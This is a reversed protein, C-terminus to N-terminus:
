LRIGFDGNAVNIAIKRLEQRRDNAAPIGRVLAPPITNNPIADITRGAQKRDRHLTSGIPKVVRRRQCSFEAKVTIRPSASSSATSNCSPHHQRRADRLRSRYPVVQAQRCYRRWPAQKLLPSACPCDASAEPEPTLEPDRTTCRDTLSVRRKSTPIIATNKFDILRRASGHYRKDSSRLRHGAFTRRRRRGVSTRRQCWQQPNVACWSRTRFAGKAMASM